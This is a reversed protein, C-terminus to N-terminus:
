PKAPSLELRRTGNRLENAMRRWESVRKDGTTRGLKVARGFADIAAQRKELKALTQALGAHFEPSKPKREVLRQWIPLSMAARGEALTVEASEQLLNEVVVPGRRAIKRRRNIETLDLSELAAVGYVSSRHEDAPRLYLVADAIDSVVLGPFAFAKDPPANYRRVTTFMGAPVGEFIRSGTSLLHPTQVGSLRAGLETGALLTRGLYLVVSTSGPVERELHVTTTDPSPHPAPPEWLNRRTLHGNGALVLARRGRDLVERRIVGAMHVDRENKPDNYYAILDDFTNIKSWDIPPDGALVRLRRRSGSKALQENVSRVHEFFVPYVPSEWPLHVAGIDRWASALQELSVNGGGVYRDILHQHGATAFEVVIDDVRDTFRSDAILDRIFEHQTESGHNECFALIAHRDLMAILEGILRSTSDPHNGTDSEAAEAVNTGVRGIDLRSDVKACGAAMALAVACGRSLRRKSKM